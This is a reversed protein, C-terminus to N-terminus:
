KKKTGAQKKLKSLWEASIGCFEAIYKAPVMQIVSPMEELIYDYLEKPSFAILKTKLENEEFMVKAIVDHYYQYFHGDEAVLQDVYTKPLVLLDADTVARLECNTPTQTFYSDLCAMIPHLDALYFNITKAAGTKGHIYRCIFGGRMILYINKCVEGPLIITEKSKVRLVRMQKRIRQTSAESIKLTRLSALYNDIFHNIQVENM